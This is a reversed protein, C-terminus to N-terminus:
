VDLGGGTTTPLRYRTGTSGDPGSQSQMLKIRHKKRMEGLVKRVKEQSIGLEASIEKANSEQVEGLFALVIDELKEGAHKYWNTGNEYELLTTPPSELYRAKSYELERLDGGKARKFNEMCAVVGELVTSGRAGSMGSDGDEVGSKREHHSIIVGCKYDTALAQLCDIMNAMETSSNEEGKWLSRFPEIFVIDPKVKECGARVKNLLAPDDLKMGSYGGDGWIWVNEKIKERDEESLRDGSNNVMIGMKQHFMGAAGENEIILTKLPKEPNLYVCGNKDVFSEFLPRGCAWKLIRNLNLTTKGYGARGLTATIEGRVVITPWVLSPPIEIPLALYEGLSSVPPEFTDEKVLGLAQMKARQILAARKADNEEAALLKAFEDITNM